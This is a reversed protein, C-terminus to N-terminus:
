RGCVRLFTVPTIDSLGDGEASCCCKINLTTPKQNPVTVSARCNM